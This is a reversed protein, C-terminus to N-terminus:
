NQVLKYIRGSIDVLYLEGNEDEGFSVLSVPLDYLQQAQWMGEADPLAGWVLGTCYDGFLYVGYWAPLQMGRYVYGGTVSCNGGSHQYELIPFILGDRQSESGEFVRSGEFLDWGFNGGPAGAPLLNIEEWANQGVDAIFM